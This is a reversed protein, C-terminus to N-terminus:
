TLNSRPASKGAGELHYIEMLRGVLTPFASDSMHVWGGEVRVFFRGMSSTIRGTVPHPREYTVYARGFWVDALRGDPDHADGGVMQIQEVEVGEVAAARARVAQERTAYIGERKALELQSVAYAWPGAVVLTALLLLALPLLRARSSRPAFTGAPQEQPTEGASRRSARQLLLWLVAGTLFFPLTLVALTETISESTPGTILQLSAGLLWAALWWGGQPLLRRLLLAQALGVCAGLLLFALGPSLFGGHSLPGSNVRPAILLALLGFTLWGAVTLPLWWGASSLHPRLLLWQPLATALGLATVLGLVTGVATAPDPGPALELLRLFLYGLPPAVFWALPLLALSLLTWGVIWLWSPASLVGPELGRWSQGYALLLSGPFTLLERLLLHALASRGQQRAEAVAQAFVGVMEEGLRDRFGAPYLSVLLHYFRILAKNEM